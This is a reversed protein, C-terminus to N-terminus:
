YAYLSSNSSDKSISQRKLILMSSCKYKLINASWRQGTLPLYLLGQCRTGCSPWQCINEVIIMIGLPHTLGILFLLLIFLEPSKLKWLSAKRKKHTADHKSLCKWVTILSAKRLWM